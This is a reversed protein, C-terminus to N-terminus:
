KKREAPREPRPEDYRRNECAKEYRTAQDGARTEVEANYAPRGERTARRDAQRARAVKANYAAVADASTRDLTTSSRGEAGDGSRDIEAKDADLQPRRRSPPEDTQRARAQGAAGPMRAAAGADALPTKAGAPPAGGEQRRRAAARRSVAAAVSLASALVALRAFRIDSAMPPSPSDPLRAIM